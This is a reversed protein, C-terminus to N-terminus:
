SFHCALPVECVKQTNAKTDAPPALRVLASLEFIDADSGVPVDAVRRKRSAFYGGGGTGRIQKEQKASGLKAHDQALPVIRRRADMAPIAADAAAQGSAPSP